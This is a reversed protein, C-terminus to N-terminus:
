SFGHRFLVLFLKCGSNVSKLFNEREKNNSTYDDKNNSLSEKSRGHFSPLGYPSFMQFVM